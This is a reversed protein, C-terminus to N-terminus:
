LEVGLSRVLMRRLWDESAKTSLTIYIPKISDELAEKGYQDLEDYLKEDLIVVGIDPDSAVKDFGEQAKTVEFVKKIGTLRFGLCFDERGVIAIEM